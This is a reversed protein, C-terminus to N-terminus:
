SFGGSFARRLGAARLEPVVASTVTDPILWSAHTHALIRLAAAPVGAEHLRVLYREGQDRLPDHESVLIVAPPLGSLDPAHLPSAYPHAPDGGDLYHMAFERIATPTLAGGAPNFASDPTLDLAPMDLHQLLPLPLGRDRAALCLAAALNAGASAGGVAVRAPDAGLGSAHDLLWTYAALCDELATPFPHEPALRYDVSVVMCPVLTAMPGCEVEGTDLDGHVWGGGHMFLYAPAPSPLDHPRLIRVVIEGRRVPVHHHTVKVRPDPAPAVSLLTEAARRRMEALDAPPQTEAAGAALGAFYRRVPPDLHVPSLPTPDPNM